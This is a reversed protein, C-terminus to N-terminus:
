KWAKKRINQLTINRDKWIGAFKSFHYKKM